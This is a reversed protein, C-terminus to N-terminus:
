RSYGASVSEIAGGGDDATYDINMRNRNIITGAGKFTVANVVQAPVTVSTGSINATVQNVSGMNHFNAISIQTTSVGIRSISVQYNFTGSGGTETCAWNGEMTEATIGPDDPGEEPACSAFFALLVFLFPIAPHQVKM